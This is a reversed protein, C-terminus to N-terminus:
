NSYIIDSSLRYAIKRFIKDILGKLIKGNQAKYEDFTYEEDSLMDETRDWIVKKQRLNVMKCSIRAYVNLRDRNWVRKLSLEEINLEIVADYGEDIASEANKNDLCSIKFHNTEVFQELFYDALLKEFYKEAVTKQLDDALNHDESSETLSEGMSGIILPILGFIGVVGSSFETERLYRVDLKSSSVNLAVDNIRVL